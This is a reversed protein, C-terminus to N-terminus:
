AAGGKSFAGSLWMGFVVAAVFLGALFILLGVCGPADGFWSSREPFMASAAIGGVILLAALTFLLWPLTITLTM